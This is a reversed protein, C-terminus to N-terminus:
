GHTKSLFRWNTSPSVMRKKDIIMTKVIFKDFAGVRKPTKNHLFILRKLHKNLLKEV